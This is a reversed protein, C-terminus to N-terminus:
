GDEEELQLSAWDADSLALGKPGPRIWRLKGKLHIFQKPPVDLVLSCETDPIIEDEKPIVSKSDPAVVGDALRALKIQLWEVAKELSSVRQELQALTM